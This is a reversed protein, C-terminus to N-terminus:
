NIKENVVTYIWGSSNPFCVSNARDSPYASVTLISEYKCFLLNWINRNYCEPESYCDTWRETKQSKYVQQTLKNTFFYVLRITKSTWALFFSSHCFGWMAIFNFFIVSYGWSHLANVETATMYQNHTESMEPKVLYTSTKSKWCYLRKPYFLMIDLYM